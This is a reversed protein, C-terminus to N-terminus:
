SLAQASSLVKEAVTDRVGNSVIAGVMEAVGEQIEGAPEEVAVVLKAFQHMTYMLDQYSHEVCVTFVDCM